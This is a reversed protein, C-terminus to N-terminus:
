FTKGGGVTPTGDALLLGLARLACAMRARASRTRAPYIIMSFTIKKLVVMGYDNDDGRNDDGGSYGLVSAFNISKTTRGLHLPQQQLGRTQLHASQLFFFRSSFRKEENPRWKCTFGEKSKIKLCDSYLVNDKIWTSVNM